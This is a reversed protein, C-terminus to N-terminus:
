RRPSGVLLPVVFLAFFWPSSPRGPATNCDSDAADCGEPGCIEARVVGTLDGHLDSAGESAQGGDGDVAAVWMSLAGLDADPAQWYLTYATQGDRFSPSGDAGLVLGSAFLVRGDRSRVTPAGLPSLCVGDAPATPCM